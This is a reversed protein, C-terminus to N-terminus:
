KNVLLYKIQKTNLNKNKFNFNINTTYDTILENVM